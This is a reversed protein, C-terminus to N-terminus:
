RISGFCVYMITYYQSHLQKSQICYHIFPRSCLGPLFQLRAIPAGSDSFPFVSKGGGMDRRPAGLEDAAAKKGDARYVDRTPTCGDSVTKAASKRGRVASESTRGAGSRWRRGVGSESGDVSSPCKTSASAAAGAAVSTHSTTPIASRCTHRPTGARAARRRRPRPAPYPRPAARVSLCRQARRAPCRAAPWPPPRMCVQQRLRATRRARLQRRAARYTRINQRRQGNPREHMYGGFRLWIPCVASRAV